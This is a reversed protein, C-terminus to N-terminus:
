SKVFFNESDSIRELKAQKNITAYAIFIVM